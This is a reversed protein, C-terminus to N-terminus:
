RSVNTRQLRANAEIEVKMEPKLLASVVVITGAPRIAGFVEGQVNVVAGCYSVDTVFTPRKV